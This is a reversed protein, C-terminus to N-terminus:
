EYHRSKVLQTIFALALINCLLLVSLAAALEPQPFMDGAVLGAIRITLLNYNGSVLAFASAYSGVANAYLITLVYLLPNKLIPLAIYRWYQWSSAGLLSAAEAWEEKLASFAPYLLLIALPIQFYVYVLLLGWKGYLQFDIGLNKLLVTFVGNLGLIIIFAFALPVGAFNSVTNLFAIAHKSLPPYTLLAHSIILAIILAILASYLSLEAANTLSHLYYTSHFIEQYHALSFREDASFSQQIVRFLPLWQFAFLLLILPLFWLASLHKRM